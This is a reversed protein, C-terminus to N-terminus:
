VLLLVGLRVNWEFVVLWLVLVMRFGVDIAGLEVLAIRMRLRFIHVSVIKRREVRFLIRVIDVRGIVVDLKM